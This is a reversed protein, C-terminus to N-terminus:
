MLSINALSPTGPLAGTLTRESLRQPSLVSETDPSWPAGSERERGHLAAPLGSGGRAECDACCVCRLRRLWVAAAPGPGATEGGPRSTRGPTRTFCHCQASHCVRQAASPPPSEQVPGARCGDHLSELQHHQVLDMGAPRCLMLYLTNSPSVCSRGHLPESDIFDLTNKLSSQLYAGFTWENSSNFVFYFFWCQM